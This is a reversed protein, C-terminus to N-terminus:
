TARTFVVRKDGKEALGRGITVLKEFNPTPPDTEWGRVRAFCSRSVLGANVLYRGGSGYFMAITYSPPIGRMTGTTKDWQSWLVDGPGPFCTLNEPLLLTREGLGRRVEEFSFSNRLNICPGVMIAHRAKNIIPKELMNWFAECTEPAQKDLLEVKIEIHDDPYKAIFYKKGM